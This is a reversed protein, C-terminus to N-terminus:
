WPTDPTVLIPVEPQLPDDKIEPPPPVDPNRCHRYQTEIYLRYAKIAADMDARFGEDVIVNGVVDEHDPWLPVMIDPVEAMCVRVTLLATMVANPAEHRPAHHKQQAPPIAPKPPMAACASWYLAIFVTFLFQKM